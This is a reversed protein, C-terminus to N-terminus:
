SVLICELLIYVAWENVMDQRIRHVDGQLWAYGRCGHMDGALLWAHGGGAVMCAGGSAVMCAGVLLWAHGGAVVCAGGALLWAGGVLSWAHGGGAVVCARGGAVM